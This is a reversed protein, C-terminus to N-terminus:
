FIKHIQDSYCVENVQTETKKNENLLSPGVFSFHMIMDKIKYIPGVHKIFLEMKMTVM